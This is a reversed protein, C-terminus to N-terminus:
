HTRRLRGHGGVGGIADAVIADAGDRILDGARGFARDVKRVLVTELPQFQAVDGARLSRVVEEHFLGTETFGRPLESGRPEPDREQVRVQELESQGAGIRDPARRFLGIRPLLSHRAIPRAEIRPRCSRRLHM